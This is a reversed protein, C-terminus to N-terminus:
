GSWSIWWTLMHGEGRAPSAWALKAGRGGERPLPGPPSPPLSM